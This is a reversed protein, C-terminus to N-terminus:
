TLATFMGHKGHSYGRFEFSVESILQWREYDGVKALKEFNFKRNVMPRLDIENIDLVFLFNSPVWRSALIDLEVNLDSLYKTVAFGAKNSDQEVRVRSRDFAPIKRNQKYGTLITNPVGGKQAIAELVDNLVGETLSTTTTDIHSGSEDKLFDYVGGMLRTETASGSEKHGIICAAELSRWYEETRRKIQHKLENPVGYMDMSMRTGTMQVDGRFIQTKNSAISRDRTTDNRPVSGENAVKGIIWLTAADSILCSTGSLFDIECSGAGAGAAPNNVVVYGKSKTANGNYKLVTDTVLQKLAEAVTGCGGSNIVLDSADSAVEGNIVVYGPGISDTVWEITINHAPKGWSLRNVFPTDALYLSDLVASVDRIDTSSGIDGSYEVGTPRSTGWSAAM